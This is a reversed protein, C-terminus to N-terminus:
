YMIDYFNKFCYGQEKLYHIIETLTDATMQKAGTDHMLIVIKNKGNSTSKLDRVLSENSPKGVSDNTLSNWNVYGINNQELLIKAENKVKSYRGGESGGPFRFLHSSYEEGIAEKIKQETNNYEDLVAQASSYISTYVHSYGHNAIYHGEEYEQKVLEPYLEARSGLVFFTAKVEESKLIDLIQPTVNQSPGDDFTLYAIKETEGLTIDKGTEYINKLREKAEESYVPLILKNEESIGEDEVVEPANDDEESKKSSSRSIVMGCVASSVIVVFALTVFILIKNLRERKIVEIDILAHKSEELKKM